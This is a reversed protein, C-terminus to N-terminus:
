KNGLGKSVIVRAPRILRGNLLYGKQYEQLVQGAPVSADEQESVAEHRSPDFPKDMASFVEVGWKKLSETLQKLVMEVGIVVDKNNEGSKKCAQVAQELSDVIPLLGVILNENAFKISNLQERQSIKKYNEFEAALRLLRDKTELLENNLKEEASPELNEELAAIPEEKVDVAPQESMEELVEEKKKTEESMAIKGVPGFGQETVNSIM